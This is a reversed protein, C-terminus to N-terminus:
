KRNWQILCKDGMPPAILALSGASMMINLFFQMKAILIRWFCFAAGNKAKLRWWPAPFCTKRDNMEQPLRAWEWLAFHYWLTFFFLMHARLIFFFVLVIAAGNKAELRRRCASFYIKWDDMVTPLCVRHQLAFNCTSISFFSCKQWWFGGFVFVPAM